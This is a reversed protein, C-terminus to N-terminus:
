QQTLQIIRIQRYMPKLFLAAGIVISPSKLYGMKTVTLTGQNVNTAGTYSNLGSLTTKGAGTKTFAGTGAVIGSLTGDTASNVTTGGSSTLNGAGSVNGTLANLTINSATISNNLVINRDATLTLSNGASANSINANVTIDGSGGTGATTAITVSTGATLANSLDTANVVSTGSALQAATISGGTTTTSNILINNPDLLWEKAVVKVGSTQLFDGSTEVFGNKVSINADSVNTQSALVGTNEDRGVLVRTESLGESDAKIAGTVELLGGPALVEINGAKEASTDILGSHIIKSALGSVASAKLYVGGGNSVISGTNSIEANLVSPEVLLQVRGSNTMPVSVKDGAALYANGGNTTIKGTNEVQAGILAVYGGATKITGENKVAGANAGRKFNMRGAMFDDDSIDFTSATFSSASVSGDKGFVIGNPNVLVVKGNAELQGFIQTPNQSLVRNLLVSNSTPQAM